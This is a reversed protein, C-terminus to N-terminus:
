QPRIVEAGLIEGEVRAGRALHVEVPFRDQRNIVDGHVVSGEGVVIRLPRSRDTRGTVRRVRVDGHVETGDLLHIDGNHTTVDDGVETRLLRISGNVTEIDRRVWTGEACEISGNVTGLDGDVLVERGLDVAGNVTHVDAVETSHGITIHGNVSQCPGGIRCEEGVRINGNVSTLGHRSQEGDRMRLSRNVSVEGLCGTLLLLTTGLFLNVRSM